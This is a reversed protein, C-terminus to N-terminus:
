NHEKDPNEMDHYSRKVFVQKAWGSFVNYPVFEINKDNVWSFIETTKFAAYTDLDKFTCVIRQPYDKIKQNSLYKRICDMCEVNIADHAPNSHNGVIYVQEASEVHIDNFSELSTRYGYNVLIRKMQEKTFLRNLSEKISTADTSSLILVYAKSDKSLIHNIFSSVMEDYGMIIYHGAKLYHIHGKKYDEVRRGVINSIVAILMGTFIVVGVIYIICATIVAGSGVDGSNYLSNFANGDILLYFPLTWSSIHKGYYNDLNGGFLSLLIVSLVFAVALAAILIVVQRLTDQSLTRDFRLWFSRSVKKKM